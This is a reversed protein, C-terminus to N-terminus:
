VTSSPQGKSLLECTKNNVREEKQFPHFAGGGGGNRKLELVPVVKRTVDYVFCLWNCNVCNMTERWNVFCLCVTVLLMILARLGLMYRMSLNVFHIHFTFFDLKRCFKFFLFVLIEGWHKTVRFYILMKPQRKAGYSRIHILIWLMKDFLHHADIFNFYVLM